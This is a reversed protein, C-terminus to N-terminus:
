EEPGWLPEDVVPTEGETAWKEYRAQVKLDIWNIVLRMRGTHKAETCQLEHNNREAVELSFKYGHLLCKQQLLDGETENLHRRLADVAEWYNEKEERTMAETVPFEVPIAYNRVYQVEGDGLTLKVVNEGEIVVCERKVANAMVEPETGDLIEVDSM